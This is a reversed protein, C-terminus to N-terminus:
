SRIPQSIEGYYSFGSAFEVVDLPLKFIVRYGWKHIFSAAWMMAWQVMDIENRLFDQFQQLLDDGLELKDAARERHGCLIPTVLYNGPIPRKEFLAADHQSMGVRVPMTILYAESDVGNEKFLHDLARLVCAALYRAYRAPGAPALMRALDQVQQTR